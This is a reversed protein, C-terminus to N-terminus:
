DTHMHWRLLQENSFNTRQKWIWRTVQYYLGEFLSGVRAVETLLEHENDISSTLYLTINAGVVTSGHYISIRLLCLFEIDQEKSLPDLPWRLARSDRSSSLTGEQHKRHCKLTWCTRCSLGWPVWQCQWWVVWQGWGPLHPSHTLTIRWGLQEYTKTHSHPHTRLYISLSISSLAQPFSLHLQPLTSPFFFYSLPVLNSLYLTLLPSRSLSLFLAINYHYWVNINGPVHICSRRERREGVGVRHAPAYECGRAEGDCRLSWGRSLACVDATLGWRKDWGCQGRLLCHLCQLSHVPWSSITKMGLVRRPPSRGKILVLRVIFM